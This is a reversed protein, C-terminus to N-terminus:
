ITFNNKSTLDALQKEIDILTTNLTISALRMSMDLSVPQGLSVIPQTQLNRFTDNLQKVATILNQLVNVTLNGKLLPETASYSGLYVNGRSQVIFDKTDINVSNQSNLNISKAASLLIHDNGASFVLRGSNLLIQRGSFENPLDPATSNNYSTYSTSTAKLPVKQTSTLYISSNDENIDETIPIWGEETREGQGNRIITIPDGNIGAESWNNTITPSPSGAVTSGFRISNGWRGEQIIDGEFPLLPHINSREHFTKGLFTETSQDTVRRVSGAQTQKYDKNQTPPLNNPSVPYANHHPHNWLGVTNIYYKKVSTNSAGINTNPLSILYVIENILPYNKCNPNLPYALLPTTTTSIVLEYEITGLANWGGIAEFNPYTDDLVINKVRVATILNKLDSVALGLSLNSANSNLNKNLGSLGYDM